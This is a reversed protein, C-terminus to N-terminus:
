SGEEMDKGSRFRKLWYEIGKKSEELPKESPDGGSRDMKRLEAMFTGSGIVRVGMRRSFRVVHDRDSSVVTLAERDVSGSVRRRIYQDADNVFVTEVRSLSPMDVRGEETRGGDFVVVARMSKMTVYRNVVELLGRRGADRDALFTVRLIEDSFIVNYGDIL